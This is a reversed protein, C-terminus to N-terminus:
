ESAKFFLIQELRVWKICHSYNSYITLAKLVEDKDKCVVQLYEWNKIAKM